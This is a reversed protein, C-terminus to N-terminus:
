NENPVEGRMVSQLFPAVTDHPIQVAGGSETTFSHYMDSPIYVFNVDENEIERALCTLPYVEKAIFDTQISKDLLINLGLQSQELISLENMVKDYFAKMFLHQRRIRHFDDDYYRMSLFAIASEGDLHNEGARFYSQGDAAPEELYVDVGGIDDVYKDVKYKNLVIYHDFTIGFNHNINEALSVIGGGPGNFKEGYGYTANIRGKTIEQDTMDVILIYFDRPIATVLVEPKVFDIRVLRIVDAQAHADTVLVLVSLSDPGGCLPAKDEKADSTESVIGGEEPNEGENFDQDPSQDVDEDESGPQDSMSLPDSENNNFTPLPKGFLPNNWAFVVGAALAALVFLSISIIIIKRKKKM